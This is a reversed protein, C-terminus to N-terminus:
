GGYGESKPSQSFHCVPMSVRDFEISVSSQLTVKGLHAMESSFLGELVAEFTNKIESSISLVFLNILLLTSSYIPPDVSRCGELKM